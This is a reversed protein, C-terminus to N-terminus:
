SAPADDAGAPGADDLLDMEQFAQANNDFIKLDNVTPSAAPTAHHTTLLTAATGGGLLLVLGLAGAMAPRLGRGTGYALFSTLREWLSEPAAAQADRLRAHLRVDFFASPEPATWEDLLTWTTQLERLEQQCPTCDALHLSVGAPAAHRDLLLDPLYTRCTTCDINKM